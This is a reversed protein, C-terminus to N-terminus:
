FGQLSQRPKFERVSYGENSYLRSGGSQGNTRPPPDDNGLENALVGTSMLLLLSLVASVPTSITLFQKLLKLVQTVGNLPM